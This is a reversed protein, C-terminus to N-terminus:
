DTSLSLTELFLVLSDLESSMLGLPHLDRDAVGIVAGIIPGVSENFPDNYHEVVDRLTAAEGNHFYPSTAKLNRLSPTKIKGLDVIRGTSAKLGEITSTALVTRVNHFSSDSFNSGSHCTFCRAKGFFLERGSAATNPANDFTANALNLTRMAMALAIRLSETTAPGGFESTFAALYGPNDNIRAVVQDIDQNGMELPSELPRDVQEELSAAHGEFTKTTGFAANILTPTNFTLDNGNIDQGFQSPSDTYREAPIHCTTCSRGINPPSLITDDLLANGLAHIGVDYALGVPWKADTPDLGNPLAPAGVPWNAFASPPPTVFADRRLEDETRVIDSFAVEDLVLLANTPTVDAATASRGPGITAYPLFEEFHPMRTAGTHVVAEELQGDFFISLTTEDADVDSVFTLAIHHWGETRNELTEGATLARTTQANLNVFTTDDQAMVSAHVIGQADVAVAIGDVKTGGVDLGYEFLPTSTAGDVFAAGVFKVFCQVTWQTSARLPELQSIDIAGEGNFVIAQGKFGVNEHFPHTFPTSPQVLLEDGIAERLAASSLGANQYVEQPFGAGDNLVCLASTDRGSSDPTSSTVMVFPKSKVTPGPLVDFDLAENCALYLLYNGDAGEFRVEGYTDLVPLFLPLIPIRQSASMTPFLAGGQDLLPAWRGPKVGASMTMAGWSNVYDAPTPFSYYRPWAWPGGLRTPNLATSDIHKITWNTLDGMVYAGVKIKTSSVLVGDVKEFADSARVSYANYFSGDKSVWPYTGPVNDYKAFQTTGGSSNNTVTPRHKFLRYRDMFEDETLGGLEAASPLETISRPASWGTASPGNPNYSYTVVAHGALAADLNGAGHYLLLRGDATLTPEIGRIQAGTSAVTLPAFYANSGPLLLADASHITQNTENIVVRVNQGAFVPTTDTGAPVPAWEVLGAGSTNCVLPQSWHTRVVWLDYTTYDGVTSYDGNADSPFPNSVAGVGPERLTVTMHASGLSDSGPYAPNVQMPATLHHWCPEICGPSGSTCPLLEHGWHILTWESPSETAAGFAFDTGYNQSTPPEIADYFGELHNGDPVLRDPHALSATLAFRPAFPPESDDLKRFAILLRGDPTFEGRSFFGAKGGDLGPDFVMPQYVRQPYQQVPTPGAPVAQLLALALLFM